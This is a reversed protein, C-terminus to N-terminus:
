AFHVMVAAVVMLSFLLKYGSVSSGTFSAVSASPANSAKGAPPPGSAAPAPTGAVVNFFGSFKDGTGDNLALYYTGPVVNVIWTVKQDALNINNSISSTNGTSNNIVRLTAVTANQQPSATYQWTLVTTAGQALNGPPTNIVTGSPTTPTTSPTQALTFVTFVLFLTLFYIFRSM